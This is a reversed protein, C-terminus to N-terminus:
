GEKYQFIIISACSQSPEQFVLCLLCAFFVHWPCALSANAIVIVKRLCKKDATKLSCSISPSKTVVMLGTHQCIGLFGIEMNDATQVNVSSLHWPIWIENQQSSHYLASEPPSIRPGSSYWRIRCSCLM